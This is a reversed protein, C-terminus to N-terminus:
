YRCLCYLIWGMLIWLLTRLFRRCYINVGLSVVFVTCVEYLVYQYGPQPVFLTSTKIGFLLAPFSHLAESSEWSAGANHSLTQLRIWISNLSLKRLILILWCVAETPRPHLAKPIPTNWYRLHLQSALGGAHVLIRNYSFGSLEWRQSFVVGVNASVFHDSLTWFLEGTCCDQALRIWDLSYKRLTCMLLFMRCVRKHKWDHTEIESINVM